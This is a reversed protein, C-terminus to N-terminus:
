NKVQCAIGQGRLTACLARAAAADEAVAQLRYVTGADIEGELVRHRLGQLADTQRNLTNWGREASERTSFAGVQVGVGGSAASEESGSAAGENPAAEGGDIRGERTQGEGVAPAVDGTGEFTKGGPDEPRERIPGEPAEITSGDAVLDPDPRNSLYWLLYLVAGIAALGLAGILLLRGLGSDEEDDGFDDSELWPLPGDDEVLTLEESELEAEEKGDNGAGTM